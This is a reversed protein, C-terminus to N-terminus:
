SGSKLADAAGDALRKTADNDLKEAKTQTSATKVGKDLAHETDNTVGEKVEGQKEM